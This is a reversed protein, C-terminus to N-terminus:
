RKRRSVMAGIGMAVIAGPSPVSTWGSLHLETGADDPAVITFGDRYPYFALGGMIGPNAPAFEVVGMQGDETTFDFQFLLIPNSLDPSGDPTGDPGPLQGSEVGIINTGDIFDFSGYALAWLGFRVNSVVAVDSRGRTNIVDIGFWAMASTWEVFLASEWRGWVELTYTTEAELVEAPGEIWIYGHHVAQASAAQACAVLVGAVRLSRM